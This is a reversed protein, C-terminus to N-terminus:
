PELHRVEVVRLFPDVPDDVVQQIVLGVVEDRGDEDEEDHTKEVGALHEQADEGHGDQKSRQVVEGVSLDLQLGHLLVVRGQHQQAGETDAVEEDVLESTDEYKEGSDDERDNEHDDV